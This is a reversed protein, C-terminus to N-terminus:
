EADESLFTEGLFDGAKRIDVLVECGEGGAKVLKVRGAKIIFMMRAQEGQLFVGEGPLDRRGRAAETLAKVDHEPLNQFLWLHAFCIPSLGETGAAIEECTCRM